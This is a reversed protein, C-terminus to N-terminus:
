RHYTWMVGFFISFWLFDLKQWIPFKPKFVLPWLCVCVSWHYYLGAMTASYSFLLKLLWSRYAAFCDHNLQLQSQTQLPDHGVEGRYTHTHRLRSTHRHHQTVAPLQREGLDDVPVCGCDDAVLPEQQLYRCSSLMWVFGCARQTDGSFQVLHLFLLPGVGSVFVEKQSDIDQACM